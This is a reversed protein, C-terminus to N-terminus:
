RVEAPPVPLWLTLLDVAASETPAPDRIQYRRGVCCEDGRPVSTDATLWAPREVTAADDAPPAPGLWRAERVYWLVLPDRWTAPALRLWPRGERDREIGPHAELDAALSRAEVRARIRETARSAPTPLGRAGRLALGAQLLLLGVLLASTAAARRRRNRVPRASLLALAALLPTVALPLAEPAGRTAALLLAGWAAAAALAVALRRRRPSSVERLRVALVGLGILAAPSALALDHVSPAFRQTPCGAGLHGVLSALSVTVGRALDPRSALATSAALLALASVWARGTLVGPGASGSIPPRRRVILLPLAAWGAPGTALAAGFASAAARPRRTARAALVGAAALLALSTGGDSRSVVVLVPDVALLAGLLGATPLGLRRVALLPALALLAGALAGPLRIALEGSFGCSAELALVSELLPSPELPRLRDNVTPPERTALVAGLGDAAEGVSLPLRELHDLRLALALAAIAIASATLGLARRGARATTM